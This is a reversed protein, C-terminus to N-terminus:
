LNWVRKANGSVILEREDSPVTAFTREVLARSNPWSSVPHPYDSSWMINRVGLEPRLKEIAFPEDIFTLHVNRYYYSSPKDKLEPFEYGQREAMDDIAWLVWAVWALGPEVFVVKLDKHRELVGTLLWMGLADGASLGVNFVFVGKGPTPDRQALGNLGTNLGIHCCIPLDYEAIVNWLPDYREDFYDAFGLEHPFVPMQLSKGGAEAIRRVEQVAFDIDHIPVQASTILRKPDVAAFDLLTDNFARTSEKWGDKLKYLFRYASVECYLVEAEVGDTDMDRLRAEPESHGPTGRAPNVQPQRLAQERQMNSQMIKAAESALTAVGADYEEHFKSALRQKVQEPKVDVHSDSSILLEQVAM